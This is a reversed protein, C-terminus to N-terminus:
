GAPLLRGEATLGHGHLDGEFPLAISAACSGLCDGLLPISKSCWVASYHTCTLVLPTGM